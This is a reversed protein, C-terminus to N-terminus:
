GQARRRSPTRRAPKAAATGSSSTRAARTAGTRKTQRRPRAPASAKKDGGQEERDVLERKLIKGTPNRPLQDLFEVDRPVKYRALNSSVYKRVEDETLAAGKKKVVFAKLRQGYQPDKVGILAVEDVFKHRALVDEIERPFVNEGGSVIMEDDRGEIFLRGDEDFRGMDGTSMLGDIATKTGGGTYGEFEFQNAVFIRGTEGEAVEKDKDDFLRVITNWPPKGATGPAARLDEPTAISAWAVETSGYLNYLTDGFEDMWKTALEGPLASGSAAVVRLTSTDYKRRTRAPLELIRQMMVPVVALVTAETREIAALTQEPDFKRQLVYTSSLLMGLTFHAFGWSHFLPAAILTRDRSRLPISSLLAVAPELSKPQSRSAGKPTGTTGSTLIVVRGPQKPPSPADHSGDDIMDELSPDTIHQGKHWAVFRKRNRRAPGILQAFEADYVIAEAKERKVVETLQPGAFSTNLFLAHAGIKSLAVTTEIFGRHNRCMVAVNDGAAIGAEVLSHALANTRRNVQEFTLTGLEDLIAPEHPYRAASAEYGAAPTNGWRLLALVARATRDPREARLFGTEALVRTSHIRKQVESVVREPRAADVVKGAIEALDM